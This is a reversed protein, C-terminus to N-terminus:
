LTCCLKSDIAALCICFAQYGTLPYRFDMIYKSKGIRGLQLITQKGKEEMTMQFNKVSAQVRQGTRGSRERYDLEYRKTASNYFPVRSVLQDAVKKKLEWNETLGSVHQIQNTSTSKLQTSQQQRPIWARISRFRGTLTTITPVFMVVGLLKKTQTKSGDLGKSQNFIQYKSGILNASITGLFGEDSAVFIGKPNQAVAFESRGRRRRHRAVALKRDQRGQGEDTYLSFVSVGRAGEVPEKAIICTCRGVDLPLPRCLLARNPLTSWSSAPASESDSFEWIDSSHPVPDALKLGADPENLKMCMQLSSPKLPGRSLPTKPSCPQPKRCKLSGPEPAPVLNEKDASDPEPKANPGPILCKPINTDLPLLPVKKSHSM